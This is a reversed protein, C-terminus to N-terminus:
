LNSQYILFTKFIQSLTQTSFSSSKKVISQGIPTNDFDRLAQLEDPSLDKNRFGLGNDNVKQIISQGEPTQLFHAKAEVEPLTYTKIIQERIIGFIRSRFDPNDILSASQAARSPPAFASYQALVKEYLPQFRQETVYQEVLARKATVDEVSEAALAPIAYASFAIALFSLLLIFRRM